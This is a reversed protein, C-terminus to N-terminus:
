SKPENQLQYTIFLQMNLFGRTLKSFPFIIINSITQQNAPLGSSQFFNGLKQSFPGLCNDILFDVGFSLKFTLFM